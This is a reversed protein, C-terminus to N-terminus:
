GHSALIRSEAQSISLDRYIGIFQWVAIIPIGVVGLSAGFIKLQWPSATVTSASLVYLTISLLFGNVWYSVPLSLAGHWHRSIYNMAGKLIFPEQISHDHSAIIAFAAIYFKCATAFQDRPSPPCTKFTFDSFPIEEEREKEPEGLTLVV